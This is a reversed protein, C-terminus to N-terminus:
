MCEKRKTLLISCFMIFAMPFAEQALDKELVIAKRKWPDKKRIKIPEGQSGLCVTEGEEERRQRRIPLTTWTAKICRESKAESSKGQLGRGDRQMKRVCKERYVRLGALSSVM